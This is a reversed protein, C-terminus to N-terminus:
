CDIEDGYCDDGSEDSSEVYGNKKKKEKDSEYQLRVKILANERRKQLMSLQIQKENEEEWEFETRKECLIVNRAELEQVQKHLSDLQNKTDDDDNKQLESERDTKRNQKELSKMQKDAGWQLERLQTILFLNNTKLQLVQNEIMNVQSQLLKSIGICRKLDEEM